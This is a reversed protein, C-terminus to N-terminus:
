HEPSKPLNDMQAALACFMHEVRTQPAYTGSRREVEQLFSVAHAVIADADKGEGDSDAHRSGEGAAVAGTLTATSSALTAPTEAEETGQEGMPDDDHESGGVDGPSDADSGDHSDDFSGNNSSSNGDSADSGDSGDSSDGSQLYDALLTGIVHSALTAPSMRPLATLQPVDALWLKIMEPDLSCTATGRITAELARLENQFQSLAARMGRAIDAGTATVRGGDMHAFVIANDLSFRLLQAIVAASAIGRQMAEPDTM